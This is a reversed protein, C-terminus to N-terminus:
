KVRAFLMFHGNDPDGIGIHLLHPPKQNRVHVFGIGSTGVVLDVGWDHGGTAWALAWRGSASRFGRKSDGFDTAWWDPINKMSFTRDANLVLEHTSITYGGNTRMDDLTSPTPVWRGVLDTENPKQRAFQLEEVIETPNYCGASLLM